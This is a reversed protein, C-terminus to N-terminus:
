DAPATEPDPEDEVQGEEWAGIREHLLHLQLLTEDEAEKLRDEIERVSLGVLSSALRHISLTKRIAAGLEHGLRRVSDVSVLEGVMRRLEVQAMAIKVDLLRDRRDETDEDDLTGSSRLFERWASVELRGDPRPPPRGPQKLKRQITWRSVGLAQALETQNAVFARAEPGGGEKVSELLRRQGASLTRGAGVRDVMNRLDAKLIVSAQEPTLAAKDTTPEM